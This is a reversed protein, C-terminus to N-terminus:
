PMIRVLDKGIVIEGKFNKGALERMKDSDEPPILHTLVLKKVGAAAAIKGVQEADTHYRSL